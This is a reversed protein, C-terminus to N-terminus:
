EGVAGKRAFLRLVRQALLEARRRLRLWPHPAAVGTLSFFTYADVHIFSKGGARDGCGREAREAQPQRM